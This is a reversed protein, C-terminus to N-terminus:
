KVAPIPGINASGREKMERWYEFEEGSDYRRVISGGHTEPAFIMWHAHRWKTSRAGQLAAAFTNYWKNDLQNGQDFLLWMSDRPDVQVEDTPPTPPPPLMDDTM